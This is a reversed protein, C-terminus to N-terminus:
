REPLEIFFTSGEGIGESEAWIQGRHAKVIESAVYLGVGSIAKNESFRNFKKFVTIVDEKDMGVGTDSVSVIIKKNQKNKSISIKISGKETYQIANDIVNRIVQKIKAYDAYINFEIDKDLSLEIDINKDKAIKSIEEVIEELISGLEINKLEYHMRGEEIRSIILFDDIIDVLTQSSSYIKDTVEKLKESLEGFSGEILMSAYGKIATLPTRLQHSAISVFESKQREMKRLKKNAIAIEFALGEIRERTEVEKYIGRVLLFGFITILMFITINTSIEVSTKSLFINIFLILLIFVVSSEVAIIKFDWLKYRAIAYGIFLVMIITATPGLWFFNFNGYAPLLLNTIIGILSAVTTGLLIYKTQIKLLNTTTNYKHFLRYFSISFVSIIYLSYLYYWKGFKIVKISNEIVVDSIIASPILVLIIILVYFFVLIVLIKNMKLTREGWSTAFFLFSIPILAAGVYPLSAIPVIYLSDISIYDFIAHSVAWIFVGVSIAFFSKNEIEKYSKALVLCGFILNFVGAIVLFFTNLTIPLQTIM